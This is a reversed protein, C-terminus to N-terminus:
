STETGDEGDDLSEILERLEALVQPRPKHKLIYGSAGLRVAENVSEISNQTTMIAVPVDPHAETLQALVKLGDIGPLNLDLLVLRPRHEAVMGLVDNGNTAEWCSEIGLEKLLMRVYARVHSEDDVILVTAPGLM